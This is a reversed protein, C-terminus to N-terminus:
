VAQVRGLGEFSCLQLANLVDEFLQTGQVSCSYITHANQDPKRCACAQATTRATLEQEESGEQM